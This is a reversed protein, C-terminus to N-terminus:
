GRKRRSGFSQAIEPHEDTTLMPGDPRGSGCSYCHAVGVGNVSRCTGCIWWEGALVPALRRGARRAVFRGVLWAATIAGLAVVGVLIAYSSLTPPAAFQGPTYLGVVESVICGLRLDVGAPGEEPFRDACTPPRATQAAPVQTPDAALVAGPMVATALVILATRAAIAARAAASALAPRSARRTRSPTLHHPDRTPHHLAM